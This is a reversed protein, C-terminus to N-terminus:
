SAPNISVFISIEVMAAEATTTFTSMQSEQCVSMAFIRSRHDAASPTAINVKEDRIVPGNEEYNELLLKV